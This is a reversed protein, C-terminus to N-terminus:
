LRTLILGLIILLIALWQYWSLRTAKFIRSLFVTVASTLSSLVVVLAVQQTAMGATLALFGAVSCLRNSIL